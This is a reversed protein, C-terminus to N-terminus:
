PIATPTSNYLGIDPLADDKDPVPPPQAPPGDPHDYAGSSILFERLDNTDFVLVPLSEDAGIRGGYEALRAQSAGAAEQRFRPLEVELLPDYVAPSYSDSMLWAERRPHVAVVTGDSKRKVAWTEFVQWAETAHNISPGLFLVVEKGRVGGTLEVTETNYHYQPEGYVISHGMYDRTGEVLEEASIDQKGEADKTLHELFEPVAIYLGTQVTLRPSGKGLIYSNVRVDAFCQAAWTSSTSPPLFEDYLARRFPADGTCRETGPLFTARAIIHTIFDYHPDNLGVAGIQQKVGPPLGDLLRFSEGISEIEGIDFAIRLGTLLWWVNSVLMTTPRSGCPDISSGDVPTCPPIEETLYGTYPSPTPTSQCALAAAIAALLLILLAGRKVIERRLTDLKKGGDRM